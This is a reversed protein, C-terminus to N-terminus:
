SVKHLKAQATPTEPRFVQLAAKLGAPQLVVLFVVLHVLLRRGAQERMPDAILVLKGGAALHGASRHQRRTQSLKPLM